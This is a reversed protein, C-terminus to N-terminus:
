RASRPQNREGLIREIMIRIEAKTFDCALLSNIIGQLDIRAKYTLDYQGAMKFALRSVFPSKPRLKSWDM